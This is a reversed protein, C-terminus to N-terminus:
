AGGTLDPIRAADLRYVRQPKGNNGHPSGTTVSTRGTDLLVGRRKLAYVTAGVSPPHVLYEGSPGILRARVANLDVVGEDALATELVAKTIIARDTDHVPDIGMLDLLSATATDVRGWRPHEVLGLDAETAGSFLDLQDMAAATM